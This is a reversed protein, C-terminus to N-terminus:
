QSLDAEIRPLKSSLPLSTNNGDLTTNSTTAGQQVNVRNGNPEDLVSPFNKYIDQFPQIFFFIWSDSADTPIPSNAETEPSPQRQHEDDIIEEQIEIEDPGGYMLGDNGYPILGHPLMDDKSVEDTSLFSQFRIHIEKGFSLIIYLLVRFLIRIENLRWNLVFLCVLSM